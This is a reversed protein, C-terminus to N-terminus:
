EPPLDTGGAQQWSDVPDDTLDCIRRMILWSLERYGNKDDPHAAIEDPSIPPGVTMTMRGWRFLQRRVRATGTIVVPVIPVGAQKALLGVGPRPPLMKGTRSRTGEPFVLVPHGRKLTALVTGLARRDVGGRRVPLANLSRLFWGALPNAFLEAKAFFGIPGWVLIATLPPDFWSRHTPCILYPGDPLHERGRLRPWWLIFYIARACLWVLRYIIPSM